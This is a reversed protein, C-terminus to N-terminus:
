KKGTYINYMFDSWFDHFSTGPHVTDYAVLSYKKEEKKKSTDYKYVSQMMEDETYIYHSDFDKLLKEVMNIDEKNLQEGWDLRKNTTGPYFRDTKYPLTDTDMYRENTFWTTTILSINNSKCYQHLYFYTRYILINLADRSDKDVYKADRWPDPLLIFITKPNGYDHCYRFVQDISESISMGSAAINYYGGINESNSIKTHVKKAWTEEFELSEGATISCGSFLIKNENSINNFEDCGFAYEFVGPAIPIRLFKEKGEKSIGIPHEETFALKFRNIEQKKNPESETSM